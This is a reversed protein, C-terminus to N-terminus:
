PHCSVIDYYADPVPIKEAPAHLYKDKHAVSDIPNPGGRKKRWYEM